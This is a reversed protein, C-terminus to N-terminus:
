AVKQKFFINALEDYVDGTPYAEYFKGYLFYVYNFAAERPVSELMKLDDPGLKKLFDDILKQISYNM